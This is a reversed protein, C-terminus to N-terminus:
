NVLAKSVFRTGNELHGVIFYVGKSVDSIQINLENNQAHQDSKFNVLRGQLDFIQINKIKSPCNITFAGYSPNPVVFLEINDISSVASPGFYQEYYATDSECGQASIFKVIFKLVGTDAVRFKLISDTSSFPQSWQVKYNKPWQSNPNVMMIMTDGPYIAPRVIKFEPKRPIMNFSLVKTTSDICGNSTKAILTIVGTLNKFEISKANLIESNNGAIKLKWTWQNVTDSASLKYTGGFCINSDPNVSYLANAANFVVFTDYYVNKCKNSDKILHFRAYKGTSKPKYFATDSKSITDGGITWIQSGASQSTMKLTEGLCISKKSIFIPKANPLDFITFKVSDSFVCGSDTTLQMKVINIGSKFTSKFSVATDKNLVGNVFWTRLYKPNPGFKLEAIIVSDTLCATKTSTIAIAKAPINVSITSYERAGYQWWSGSATKMLKLPRISYTHSGVTSKVSISTDSGITIKVKKWNGSVLEEILVSDVNDEHLDWRFRVMDTCKAIAKSNQLSGLPYMTLTPDGMLATHVSSQFGAANYFYYSNVSTLTASALPAGLACEHFMWYPRGSWVNALGWGKSALPARLMNDTNDWDGFYSGFMMTFPNLLSDSVFNASSSVGSCSTYTGAGCGYSLLYSQNSMTSRYDKEFVSDKFQVAFNRFGGSAFAESNSYGFNDDILGRAVTKYKGRRFNLDKNLYRKTLFTDNGFSSMGFMDVRGVPIQAYQIATLATGIPNIRSIDFKGDSPINQNESRTAQTNNVTNDSWNSYFNGYYMDAPWAGTHEVHGDPRYNGSYPVPIHGLLFISKINLSDADWQTKIWTKISSVSATRLVVKSVIDWGERQLQNRYDNIQSILPLSYNSDIILLLKGLKVKPALKNGIMVYGNGLFSYLSSKKAIRYEIPKGGSFYIDTYKTSTGSVSDILLWDVKSTSRKFIYYKQANPDSKWLIDLGGSSKIEASIEVAVDRATQGLVFELNLLFVILIIYKKM